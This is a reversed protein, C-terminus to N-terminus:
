DSGKKNTRKPHGLACTARESSKQKRPKYPPKVIEAFDIYKWKLRQGCRDCFRMYERDVTCKCRPCIPYSDGNPFVLIQRVHFPTRFVLLAFYKQTKHYNRSRKKLRRDLYLLKPPDSGGFCDTFVGRWLVKM